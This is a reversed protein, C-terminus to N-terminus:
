IYGKSDTLGRGPFRYKRGHAMTMTRTERMEEQLRKWSMDTARIRCFLIVTLLLRRQRDFEREEGGSAHHTNLHFYYYQKTRFCNNCIDCKYMYGDQSPVLTPLDNVNVDSRVTHVLLQHHRVYGETRFTKECVLCYCNNPPSM